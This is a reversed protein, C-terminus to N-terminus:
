TNRRNGRSPSIERSREFHCPPFEFHCSPNSGPAPSSPPAPIRRVADGDVRVDRVIEARLVRLRGRQRLDEGGGDVVPRERHGVAPLAPRDEQVEGADLGARIDIHVPLFDAVGLVGLAERPEVDGLGQLFAVVFQGELYEAVGGGGPQLALVEPADAADLPVYVQGALLRGDAEVEADDGGQVGGEGVADELQLHARLGPSVHGISVTASAM